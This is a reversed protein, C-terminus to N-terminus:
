ASSIMFVPIYKASQDMRVITEFRRIPTTRRNRSCHYSSIKVQSNHKQQWHPLEEVYLHHVLFKVSCGAKSMWSLCVIEMFMMMQRGLTRPWDLVYHNERQVKGGFIYLRGGLTSRFSNSNSTLPGGDVVMAQWGGVDVVVGCWWWWPTWHPQPHYHRACGHVSEVVHVIHVISLDNNSGAASAPCPNQSWYGSAAPVLSSSLLRSSNSYRLM